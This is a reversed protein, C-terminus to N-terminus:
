RTLKFHRLIAQENDIHTVTMIRLHKQIHFIRHALEVLENCQHPYIFVSNQLKYFGLLSLKRQVARRVDKRKEPIDFCVVRWKGDWQKKTTLQYKNFERYNFETMGLDTIQYGNSTKIVLGKKVLGKLARKLKEMAKYPNRDIMKLIGGLGPAVALALMVGTVALLGLIIQSYISRKIESIM